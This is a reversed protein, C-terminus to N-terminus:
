TTSRRMVDPCARRRLHRDLYAQLGEFGDLLDNWTSWYLTHAMVIDVVTFQRGVLFSRGELGAQLVRAAARFDAAASPIDAEVREDDPLLVKNRRIRWLPADLETACFFMWRDHRGREPTGPPPILGGDAHADALWTCIAMSETLVLGDAVMAPVRGMPNLALYEPTKHEGGPLDVTVREFPIGLERLTWLCRASRTPGFEHLQIMLIQRGQQTQARDLWCSSM